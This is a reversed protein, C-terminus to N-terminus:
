NANRAPTRKFLGYVAWPVFFAFVAAIAGYDSHIGGPPRLLSIAAIWGAVALPIPLLAALGWVVRDRRSRESSLAIVIAPALIFLMALAAIVPEMDLAL